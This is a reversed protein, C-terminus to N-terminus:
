GRAILDLAIRKLASDDKDAIIEQIKLDFRETVIREYDSRTLGLQQEQEFQAVAAKGRGGKVADVMQKLIRDTREEEETFILTVALLTLMTFEVGLAFLIFSPKQAPIFKLGRIGVVIILFAAGGYAAGQVKNAYEEVFHYKMYMTLGTMWSGKGDLYRQAGNIADIESQVSEINIDERRALLRSNNEPDNKIISEVEDSTASLQLMLRKKVDVITHYVRDRFFPLRVMFGIVVALAFGFLMDFPIFSLVMNIDFQAEGFIVHAEYGWLSWVVNKPGGAYASVGVCFLMHVLVVGILTLLLVPANSPKQTKRGALPKPAVRGPRPMVSETTAM